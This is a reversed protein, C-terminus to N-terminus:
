CKNISCIIHTFYCVMQRNKVFYSGSSGKIIREPFIEQDIACEAERVVSSFEPDDSFSNDISCLDHDMRKLLPQSEKFERENTQQSNLSSSNSKVYTVDPLCSCDSLETFSQDISFFPKIQTEEGKENSLEDAM